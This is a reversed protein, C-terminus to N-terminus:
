RHEEEINATQRVQTGVRKGNRSIENEPMAEVYMLVLM